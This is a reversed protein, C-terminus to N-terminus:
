STLRSLLDALAPSGRLPDLLPDNPAWLMGPDRANYAQELLELAAAAEGRQAHVQARQYLATAGYDASLRTLAAQAAGADGLKAAAIATATLAFIPVREAKAAALAGAADGQMVRAAAMAFHASALSPNLALAHQMHATVGAYDRNFLAIYGASRFARANLPDLAIVREIMAAAVGQQAGYSYFTAIQRLADADGPALREAAQYHPLAAARKLEGNNLAFGLALHGPASRPELAIAREAATIAAAYLARVEAADSAANAIGSLMTARMAHAASYGPDAAIAADFQALAERDTEVGASVDYLAHGRLFAEYAAVVSTGAIPQQAQLATQVEDSSAVQAVLSVAVTEAIETQLAFVDDVARDYSEAWRVLGGDIEVLEASVRMRAADRQVNGRLIHDVGLERGIAFEDEGAIASSSTPAAVRLRPNRVLVARLENSLGDSFWGKTADGTLNAFPLVVMSVAQAASPAFVGSAWGAAVAAAGALGVGGILTSRRSLTFGRAPSSQAATAAALHPAPNLAPTGAAAASGAKSRVAALIRTAEDAAPDGSWGAIDLLQFQRFGLPAITGDLSLPVLCGRERGRQAEDRVWHSGVSVQSWLVVVCAATELANETTALYNEGGELRGDWWVDFGATELLAIIPRACDLDKRSYSLFIPSRRRSDAEDAGYESPM